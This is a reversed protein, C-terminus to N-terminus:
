DKVYGKKDETDFRKSFWVAKNYNPTWSLGKPNRDVAVGRYVKFKNPLNCYVKYDEETMLVQKDAEKFWKTLLSLSCNADQNPNESSVWADALLESFDEISLYPKIYKLFTLRYAKRIIMYVGILNKSSKIREIYSDKVEKLGDPTLINIAESRLVIIGSEFIPHDVVIPSIPTEKIDINLFSIAIDKVGNLDTTKLM